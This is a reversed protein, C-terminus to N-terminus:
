LKVLQGTHRLSWQAAELVRVSEVGEAGGTLPRARRRVCDVFHACVGALAERRDVRPAWMDGIRYDRLLAPRDEDFVVGRDYVKIKEDPELDDYLLMKRDGVIITQRLKVPSIWSVNVHAQADGDLGLTLHAVSEVGEGLHCGGTAQVSLFRRRLLFQLLAVDHIALDWIVSVDTQFLGLNIRLSDYYRIEGLEGRDILEAIKRVAGAYVYTHDVMLVRAERQAVEVLMEAEAGTAALPKEILVDKGAELAALGLEYHTAVPTAVVVAQIDPRAILEVPDDFLFTGPHRAGAAERRASSRDAVAALTVGRIEGLNRALNPGWYGFGILGVRM